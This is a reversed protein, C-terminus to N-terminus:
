SGVEHRVFYKELRKARSCAASHLDVEDKRSMGVLEEGLEGLARIVIFQKFVAHVDVEVSRAEEVGLMETDIAFYGQDAGGVNIDTGEREVGLDVEEDVVRRDHSAQLFKLITVEGVAFEQRHFGPM